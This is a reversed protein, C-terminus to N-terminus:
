EDEHTQILKDGDFAEIKLKFRSVESCGLETGIFMHGRNCDCSYNHDLWNFFSVSGDEIYWLSGPSDYVGTAGTVTDKWHVKADLRM